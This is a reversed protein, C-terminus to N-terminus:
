FILRSMLCSACIDYRRLADVMMFIVKDFPPPSSVHQALDLDNVDFVPSKSIPPRGRFFGVIFLIVGVPLLLNAVVLPLHQRFRAM